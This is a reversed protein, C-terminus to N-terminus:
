TPRRKIKPCIHIKESVFQQIEPFEDANKPVFRGNGERQRNKAHKSRSEHRYTKSKPREFVYNPGKIMGKGVKKNRLKLIRDYQKSNVYVPTKEFDLLPLPKRCYLIPVLEDLRKQGTGSTACADCELSLMQQYNDPSENDTAQFGPKDSKYFSFNDQLRHLQGFLKTDGSPISLDLSRAESFDLYFLPQHGYCNEQCSSESDDSKYPILQREESYPCIDVNFDNPKIFPSFGCNMEEYEQDAAYKIYAIESM